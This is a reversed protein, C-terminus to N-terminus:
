VEKKAPQVHLVLGDVAVVQVRDGRKLPLTSEASWNEGHIHVRGRGEFDELVEGTAANRVGTGPPVALVTDSGSAGTKNSGRGHQGRGARVHRRNHLHLLTNLGEDVVLIVNGGRGGDGGDPGGKPVFKERRFSVCGNGGDGARATLRIQDVFM